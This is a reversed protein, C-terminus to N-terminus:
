QRDVPVRIFSYGFARVLQAIGFMYGSMQLIQSELQGSRKRPSGPVALSDPM